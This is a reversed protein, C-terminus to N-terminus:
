KKNKLEPTPQKIKHLESEPLEVSGLPIAETPPPTHARSGARFLRIAIVACVALFILEMWKLM